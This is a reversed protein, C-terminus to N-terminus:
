ECRLALTPDVRSARWAPVLAAVSTVIVMLVTAGVITVPDTASVGFLQNSLFRAAIAGGLAGAVMGMGTLTFADKAILWLVAGSSSGLAVRIGIERTRRTVTYAMVGYLGVTALLLALVGFASALVSVLRERSLSDKVRDELSKINFVPVEKDLVDFEHRVEAGIDATSRSDVRVHLTPMYATEQQIAFYIAPPPPDRLDYYRSARVMGVVQFQRLGRIDAVVGRGILNENKFLARALVDNLIVVPPSGQKDAPSFDRGALQTMGITKFFGPGVLDTAAELSGGGPVRVMASYGGRSDLPGSEAMAVSSVGPLLAIRRVLEATMQQIQQSSYLEKQPKMTFLLVYDPRYGYDTARLKSLTRIFLGAAILLVLSLAVQSIVLVKRFGFGHGEGISGSSDTKLSGALDGRTATLAPLLGFLIGTALSVALTFFVARPDPDLDLVMRMHTQPLFGFLVKTTWAAVAIGLVGGVLWLLLSEALMQRVIRARAAGISARVALERQRAAARALLMNAVNACAILLVLAVLALLVFLPQEFQEVFSHFGKGAPVLRIRRLDKWRDEQVPAKLLFHHLQIDMAAEARRLTVGPKLRAMSGWSRRNGSILHIQSLEQGRPMIPLRLEPDLGVLIGFFGAPSVGVVTFPYNNIRVTSGIVHRDGAFRSRWFGYSLVVEPAWHGSQVEQSFGQGLIPRVGLFAFFNPSVGEGMIREARGGRSFSLGDASATIWDSFITGSRRLEESFAAPLDDDERGNAHIASFGVLSQQDEVPLPKWLIADMATFIASNAGIGLALSLLATTAFGPSRRFSRAAYRVDALLDELWHFHWAERTDERMRVPSGFERRAQALADRSSLGAQELEGARTEIHFEIERELEADFRTRRGLYSLRNTLEKWFSM